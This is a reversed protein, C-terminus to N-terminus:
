RLCREFRYHKAMKHYKKMGRGYFEPSKSIFYMSFHTTVDDVKSFRRGTLSHQLSRFLHYGNSSVDPIYDTPWYTSEGTSWSALFKNGLSAFFSDFDGKNINHKLPCYLASITIPSHWSHIVINKSQLDDHNLNSTFLKISPKIIIVTGSHARGNPHQTTYVDYGRIKLYNKEEFHAAESIII